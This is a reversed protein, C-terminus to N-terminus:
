TLFRFLNDAYRMDMAVLTALMMPLAVMMLSTMM